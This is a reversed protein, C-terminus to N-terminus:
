TDNRAAAQLYAAIGDVLADTLLEQYHPDRLHGAERAHTLYGLEVLVSPAANRSLVTFPGPRPRGRV